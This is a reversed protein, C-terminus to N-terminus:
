RTVASRHREHAARDPYFLLVVAAITLLVLVGAVVQLGVPVDAVLMGPLAGLGALVLLVAAVRRPGRADGRWSLVLLVVVALGLVGGVVLVALPPGAEGPETPIALSAVHLVGLAIGLVHGWRRPGTVPSTV